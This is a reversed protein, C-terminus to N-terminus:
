INKFREQVYNNTNPTSNEMQVFRCDSAFIHKIKAVVKAPLFDVYCYFSMVSQVYVYIPLIASILM